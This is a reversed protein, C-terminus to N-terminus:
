MSRDHERRDLIYNLVTVCQDAQYATEGLSIVDESMALVSKEDEESVGLHDGIVFVPKSIEVNGIDKGTEKLYYINRASIEKLVDDLEKSSIFIGPSVRTWEKGVDSKLAKNIMGAINREDPALYRVQTGEVRISKVPDPPGKLIVYTTVNKRIGHSVFLSQSIFRCVIDMRGASGPLDNLNFPATVARNAILVFVRDM